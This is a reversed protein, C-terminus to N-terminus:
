WKGPVWYVASDPKWVEAAVDRHSLRISRTHCDRWPTILWRSLHFDIKAPLPESLRVSHTATKYAYYGRHRASLHEVPSMILLDVVGACPCTILDLLIDAFSSTQHETRICVHQQFVGPPTRNIRLCTNYPRLIWSTLSLFTQSDEHLCMKLKDMFGLVSGGNVHESNVHEGNVHESYWMRM